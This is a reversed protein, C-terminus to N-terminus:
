EGKTLAANALRVFDDAAQKPPKTGKQLSQLMEMWALRMGSFGDVTNYYATYFRTWSNLKQLEPTININGFSKRVPQGGSQLVNLRGIEDDDCLFKVLEKSAQVKRADKNQVVAFGNLLYELQPKGQPAPFPVEVVQIQNEALVREEAKQQTGSWLMTFATKGNVFNKIDDTGTLFVGETLWGKNLMTKLLGIAKVSKEDNLRYESLDAAILESGYLNYVFARTGQDGGFGNCFVSGGVFGAQHLKELVFLFDETTWGEKVLSSVGAAELRQKNFAMYFPSSSLPYMYYDGGAACAKVLAANDVDTLFKDDFFSNLKELKGQKGYAVLRGPADFIVNAEQREVATRLKDPGSAFNLAELEVKIDPHQRQFEKVLYKEYSGDVLKTGTQAFVPFYYWNITVQEETAKATETAPATGSNVAKNGTSKETYSCAAATLLFFLALVCCVLKKM